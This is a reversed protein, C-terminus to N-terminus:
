QTLMCRFRFGSQPVIKSVPLEIAPLEATLKGNVPENRVECTDVGFEDNLQISALVCVVRMGISFSCPYELAASESNDSVPVRVYEFVCRVNQFVNQSVQFHPFLNPERM